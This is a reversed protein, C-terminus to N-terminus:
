TQINGFARTRGRPSDPSRTLKQFGTFSGLRILEVFYEACKEAWMGFAARSESARMHNREDLRHMDDPQYHSTRSQNGQRYDNLGVPASGSNAGLGPIGLKPEERM